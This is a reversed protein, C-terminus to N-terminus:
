DEPESEIPFRLTFTTGEGAVTKFSVNGGHKQMISHVIGLGQGTGKGVEKTTFFPDFIRHQINAPIGKGSDSISIEAFKGKKHTKITLSKKQGKVAADANAHAANVLVNLIAQNFSGPMCSITTLEPEFDTKIESCYKWENRSVTIINEITEELKITQETESGPHSFKRMAKVISSVQDVGFLTEKFAEPVDTHLFELDNDTKSKEWETLISPDIDLEMNRFFDDCFFLLKMVKAFSEQLYALNGAVYQVPTNIEHALGAALQGISELKQAYALQHELDEQETVDFLVAVVQKQGRVTVPIFSEELPIRKGECNRISSRERFVYNQVIEEDVGCKPCNSNCQLVKACSQGVVQEKKRGVIRLFEDNVDAVSKKQFDIILIAAKIGHLVDRLFKEQEEIYIAAQKQETIDTMAGLIAVPNGSEDKEWTMSDYVWHTNGNRDQIRYELKADKVEKAAKFFSDLVQDKDDPHITEEWIRPQKLREEPTYGYIDEVAKNVYNVALTECDARYILEKLNETIVRFKTESVKLADEAKRRRSIDRISAVAHPRGEISTLSLAIDVPIEKGDKSQISINKNWLPSHLGPSKFYAKCKDAHDKKYPEPVLVNVDEGVLFERSYGFMEVTASNVMLIRAEENVVVLSDSIAELINYLKKESSRIRLEAQKIDTIDQFAGRISVVKGEEVRPKCITRIWKKQGTATVMELELDYPTGNEMAEKLAADIKERNEEHFFSIGLEATAPTDPDIEHIRAVERTWAGNGTVPDFEWGGVKALQGMEELLFAQSKMEQEIKKRRTIDRTIASAGIIHGKHNRIPSISTSVNIRKGEKSMRITEYQQIHEGQAIRNLIKGKDKSIEPPVLIQVSKGVIEDHTYGFIREAGANWDTITGDLTAGLIADDSSEVIAALRSQEIQLRHNKAIANDVQTRVQEASVPKCILETMSDRSIIENIEVTDSEIVLVPVNALKKETRLSDILSEREYSCNYNIIILAPDLKHLSRLAHECSTPQFIRYNDVLASFIIREIEPNSSFLLVLPSYNEEKVNCSPSNPSKSNSGTLKKGAQVYATVDEAKFVLCSLEGNETLVPYNSYSIYQEKTEDESEPQCPTVNKRLQMMDPVLKTAVKKLSKELSVKYDDEDKEQFPPPILFIKSKLIDPARGVKAYFDDSAYIIRYQKDLIAFISSITTNAGHLDNSNVVADGSHKAFGTLADKGRESM